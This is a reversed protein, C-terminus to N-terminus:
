MGFHEHNGSHENHAFIESLRGIIWEKFPTSKAQSTKPAETKNDVKSELAPTAGTAM